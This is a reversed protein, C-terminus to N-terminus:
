EQNLYALVDAVHNKVKVKRWEHQVKGDENIYFTSREIGMVKKGYMNKEKIVDFAQCLYEDEDSILEFALDYKDKFKHHSAITDRSVGLVVCNHDSFAELCENFALAENTCGPTNDRPYFYLIVQQGKLTKLNITGATSNLNKNPASQGLKFPKM